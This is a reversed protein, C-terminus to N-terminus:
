LDPNTIFRNGESHKGHYVYRSRGYAGRPAGTTARPQPVDREVQTPLPSFISSTLPVSPPSRPGGEFSSRARVVRLFQGRRAAEQREEATVASFDLFRLKSCYHIVKIRYRKYDDEDFKDVEDAPNDEELSSIHEFISDPAGPNGILSLQRLNPCASSIKELFYDLDNIQNKNVSLTHLHELDPIELHETLRNGDAYLAELSPFRSLCSLSSFRNLCIDISQAGADVYSPISDLDRDSLIVQNM